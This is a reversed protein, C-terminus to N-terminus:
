SKTIDLWYRRKPVTLSEDMISDQYKAGSNEIVKISAPNDEDVTVLVRDLGIDQAKELTLSLLKQAVGKGRFKPSVGYGIHGGYAELWPSLEHRLSSRGVIHGEFIGVFFSNPVFSAPLNKGKPWSNVLEVYESFPQDESYDFAFQWFPKHNKFDELCEQFAAEDEPRLMRLEIKETNMAWENEPNSIRNVRKAQHLMFIWSRNTPTYSLQYLM